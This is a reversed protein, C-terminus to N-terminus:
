TLGDDIDFPKALALVSAMEMVTEALMGETLYLYHECASNDLFATEQIDLWYLDNM